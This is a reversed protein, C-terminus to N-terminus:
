GEGVGEAESASTSFPRARADRAVFQDRARCPRTRSRAAGSIGRRGRSTRPCAAAGRSPSRVQRPPPSSEAGLSEYRALFAHQSALKLPAGLIPLLASGGRGTRRTLDAHRLAGSAPLDQGSRAGAQDDARPLPAVPWSPLRSRCPERSRSSTRPHSEDGARAVRHVPRELVRARFGATSSTM